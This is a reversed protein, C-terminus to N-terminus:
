AEPSLTTGLLIAPGDEENVGDGVALHAETRCKKLTLRILLPM